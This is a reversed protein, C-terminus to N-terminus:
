HWDLNVHDLGSSALRRRLLRCERALGPVKFEHTECFVHDVRHIVGTGILHNLLVAELGEVDIKLLRVRRPLKQIFAALDIAQVQVCHDRNLNHKTAMLSSGQAHSMDGDVHKRHLYLQVPGDQDAVAQQLCTVQLTDRTRARLEAFAPPNPEFAYVRAGREALALTVEGVNAGCDIAIDGPAFDVSRFARMAAHHRRWKAWGNAKRLLSMCARSAYHHIPQAPM